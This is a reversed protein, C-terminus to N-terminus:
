KIPSFRTPVLIRNEQEAILPRVKALYGPWGPDAQLEARKSAREALDAYAWMHVVVNLPGVETTFFGILKPLIRSQIPLGEREYAELFEAMCGVHLRYIREEVIM